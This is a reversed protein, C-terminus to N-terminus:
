LYILSDALRRYREEWKQESSLYARLGDLDDITLNISKDAM